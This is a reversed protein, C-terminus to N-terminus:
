NSLLLATTHMPSAHVLKTQQDLNAPFYHLTVTNSCDSEIVAFEREQEWEHQM